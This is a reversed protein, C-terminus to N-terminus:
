CAGPGAVLARNDRWGSSKPNSALSCPGCAALDRHFSRHSSRCPQRLRCSSRAFNSRPRQLMAVRHLRVKAAGASFRRGARRIMGPRRARSAVNDPYIRYQRSACWPPSSSWQKQERIVLASPRIRRRFDGISIQRSLARPRTPVKTLDDIPADIFGEGLGDSSEYRPQDLLTTPRDFFIAPRDGNPWTVNRNEEALEAVETNIDRSGIDSRYLRSAYRVNKDTPAGEMIALFDDRKSVGERLRTARRHASPTRSAELGM